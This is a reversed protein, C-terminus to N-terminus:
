VLRPNDQFFGEYKFKSVAHSKPTQVQAYVVAATVSRSCDGLHLKQPHLRPSSPHTLISM